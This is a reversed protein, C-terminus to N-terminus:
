RKNKKRKGSPKKQTGRLFDGFNDTNKTNKGQLIAINNAQKFIKLLQAHYKEHEQLPSGGAAVICAKAIYKFKLHRKFYEYTNTVQKTAKGFDKINDKLEVFCFVRKEGKAYLVILDCLQEGQKNGWLKQRLCCDPNSQDDVQFFLITEGKQPTAWVSAQSEDLRTEGTLLCPTLLLTELLLKDESDSM